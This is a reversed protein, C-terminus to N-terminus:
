RRILAAASIVTLARRTTTFNLALQGNASSYRRIECATSAQGRVEQSAKGRRVAVSGVDGNWAEPSPPTRRAARRRGGNFPWESESRASM